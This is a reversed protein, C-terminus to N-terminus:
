SPKAPAARCLADLKPGYNMPAPLPKGTDHARDYLTPAPPLAPNVDAAYAPDAEADALSVFKFGEHRYQALLRPLMRADFAGVHMLLVYPIDHGYAAQAEARSMAAAERAADLYSQELWAVAKTDGAAMCRAYPENWMYDGFSMTVAAIRYGRKALEARVAARKAPDKGEDLYPFRFWRWDSTTAKAALVPEDRTIEDVYTETSVKDLDAHNWTHNGLPLGAKRWADLMPAADPSKEAQGANIFGYVPGADADHMAAIIANGVGVRTEGPPLPGHVPLDDFTIALAPQVKAAAPLAVLLLAALVLKM